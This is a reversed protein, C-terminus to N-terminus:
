IEFLKGAYPDFEYSGDELDWRIRLGRRTGNFEYKILSDVHFYQSDIDFLAWKITEPLLDEDEYEKNSEEKAQEALQMRKKILDFGEILLRKPTLDRSQAKVNTKHSGKDDKWRVDAAVEVRQDATEKLYPT